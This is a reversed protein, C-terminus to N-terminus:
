VGPALEYVRVGADFARRAVPEDTAGAAVYVAEVRAHADHAESVVKAGELVFVGEAHRASRRGVLRRLRKVNQHQRALQTSL